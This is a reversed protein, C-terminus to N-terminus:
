SIVSLSLNNGRVLAIGAADYTPSMVNIGFISDYGSFTFSGTGTSIPKPETIFVKMQALSGPPAIEKSVSLSVGAFTGAIGGGGSAFAATATVFLSLGLARSVRSM